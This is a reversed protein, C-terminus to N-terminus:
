ADGMHPGSTPDPRTVPQATASPGSAPEPTPDLTRPSDPPHAVDRPATALPLAEALTRPGEDAPTQAPEVPQILREVVTGAGVHSALIDAVDDIGVGNYLASRVRGPGTRPRARVYVNPGRQCRGFCKRRDLTVEVERPAELLTQRFREHVADAGRQGACVPGSCVLIDFGERTM